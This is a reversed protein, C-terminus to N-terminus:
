ALTYIHKLSHNMAYGVRRRMRPTFLLMTTAQNWMYTKARTHTPEPHSNHHNTPAHQRRLLVVRAFARHRMARSVTEEVVLLEM